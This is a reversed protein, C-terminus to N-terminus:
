FKFETGHSSSTEINFTIPMCKKLGGGIIFNSSIMRPASVASSTKEATLHKESLYTFKKGLAGALGVTKSHLM